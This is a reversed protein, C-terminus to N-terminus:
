LAKFAFFPELHLFVVKKQIRLSSKTYSIRSSFQVVGRQFNQFNERRANGVKEFCVGLPAPQCRPASQVVGFKEFKAASFNITLVLELSAGQSQAAADLYHLGTTHPAVDSPM